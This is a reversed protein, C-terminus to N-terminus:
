YSLAPLRKDAGVVMRRTAGSLLHSITVEASGNPVLRLVEEMAEEPTFFIRVGPVGTQKLSCSFQGTVLILFSPTVDTTEWACRLAEIPFSESKDM